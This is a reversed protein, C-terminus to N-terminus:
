GVKKSATARAVQDELEENSEYAWKKIEPDPHHAYKDLIFLYKKQGSLGLIDLVYVLERKELTPLSAVLTDWNIRDGIEQYLVANDITRFFKKQVAKNDEQLAAALLLRTGEIVDAINLECGYEFEDDLMSLRTDKENPNQLTLIEKIDKVINMGKGRLVSILQWEENLSVPIQQTKSVLGKSRDKRGERL